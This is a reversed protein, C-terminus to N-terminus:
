KADATKVHVLRHGVRDVALFPTSINWGGIM